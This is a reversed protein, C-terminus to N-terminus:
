GVSINDCVIVADRGAAREYLERLAPFWARACELEEERDEPTEVGHLGELDAAMWRGPDVAALFAAIRDIDPRDNLGTREPQYIAAGFALDRAGFHAQEIVTFEERAAGDAESRQPALLLCLTDPATQIEPMDAASYLLVEGVLLRWFDRDFPLGDAVRCVLPEAAGAFYRQQFAAVDALLSRCLAQCPQFSRQRWAAALAPVIEAHFRRADLVLFYLAM